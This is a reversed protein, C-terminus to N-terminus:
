ANKLKIMIVNYRIQDAKGLFMFIDYTCFDFVTIRFDWPKTYNLESCLFNFLLVYWYISVKMYRRLSTVQLYYWYSKGLNAMSIVNEVLM